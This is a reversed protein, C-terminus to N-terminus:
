FTSDIFVYGFNLKKNVRLSNIKSRVLKKVEDLNYRADADAITFTVFLIWDNARCLNYITQKTRRLSRYVNAVHRKENEEDMQQQVLKKLIEFDLSYWTDSQIYKPLPFLLYENTFPHQIVEFGEPIVEIESTKPNYWTNPINDTIVHKDRKSIRKGNEEASGEDENRNYRKGYYSIQLDNKYNTIKM